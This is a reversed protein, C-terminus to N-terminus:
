TTSRRGIGRTILKKALGIGVITGIISLVVSGFAYAGARAYAGREMLQVTEWSFTSFTTFGGCVGTTLFLRMEPSIVATDLSYRMIFGILLSGLVNITMTAIPFDISTRGQIATSLAYRAVSGIAGGVFVALAARWDM